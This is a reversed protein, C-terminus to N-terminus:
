NNNIEYDRFCVFYNWAFKLVDKKTKKIAISM